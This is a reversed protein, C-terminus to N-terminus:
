PLLAPLLENQRHDHAERTRACFDLADSLVYTDLPKFVTGDFLLDSSSRLIMQVPYIFGFMGSRVQVISPTGLKTDKPGTEPFLGHLKAITETPVQENAATMADRLKAKDLLPTFDTWSSM